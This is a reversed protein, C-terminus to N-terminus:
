NCSMQGVVHLAITTKSKPFPWNQEGKKERQLLFEVNESEGQTTTLSPLPLLLLLLLQQQPAIFNLVRKRRKKPGFFLLLTSFLGFFQTVKLPDILARVNPHFLMALCLKENEKHNLNLV